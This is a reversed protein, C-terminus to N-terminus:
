FPMANAQVDKLLAFDRETCFVFKVESWEFQLDVPHRWEREYTADLSDHIVNVFPQLDTPIFNYM